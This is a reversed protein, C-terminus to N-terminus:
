DIPHDRFQHLSYPRSLTQRLKTVSFLVPPTSGVYIFAAFTTTATLWWLEDQRCTKADSEVVNKVLKEEVVSNKQPNEAIINSICERQEDSTIAYADIADSRHGSVEKILKKQVGARFLRTGGSRRLSHNTFFGEIKAEEMLKSVIKSITQQGIVQEGYWQNPKPKQLAQLYFNSKTYYAPCLSLYKEVLRVTCRTVNPNPYIWVIKREAKMDKIGGDHTKTWSDERFVLCKTGNSNREFQLQSKETPMEHRLQYHEDVARLLLNIGLLFLVSNRLKVPTSEGLIGKEWLENENEYSIVSAQRRLVGVNAKTREKSINDVVTRADQFDPGEVLKWMIKYVVLYKQIAVLMQYLTRGPYLGEGRQKTVEPLFRCLSYCLNEKTLENLNLLDAMYIGFDYNYTRLRENRWDVYAGVAWDVQSQVKKKLEIEKLKNIRDDTM